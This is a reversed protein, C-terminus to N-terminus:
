EIFWISGDSVIIVSQLYQDVTKGEVDDEVQYGQLRVQYGTQGLNKFGLRRGKKGVPTPLDIVIEGATTNIRYYVDYGNVAQSADLVMVDAWFPTNATGAAGQDGQDGKLATGAPWAGGAKPGFITLTNYNIAWDGDRGDSEVPDQFLSLVGNGAPGPIGASWPGTGAWTGGAKPGYLERDSTVYFDGDAGFDDTPPDATEGFSVTPILLLANLWGAPLPTGKTGTMPNGEHFLGDATDPRQM